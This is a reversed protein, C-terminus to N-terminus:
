IKEKMKLAAPLKCVNLVECGGCIGRNVCKGESILRRRKYEVAAVGVGIVVAVGCRAIARLFQRRNDVFNVDKNKM